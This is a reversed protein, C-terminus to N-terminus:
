LKNGHILELNALMPISIDAGRLLAIVAELDTLGAGQGIMGPIKAKWSTGDQWVHVKVRLAARAELRQLVPCEASPFLHDGCCMPCCASM